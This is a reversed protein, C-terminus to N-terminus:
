SAIRDHRYQEPGAIFGPPGGELGAPDREARDFARAACNLFKSDHRQIAARVDPHSFGAWGRAFSKSASISLESARDVNARVKSVARSAARSEPPGSAIV